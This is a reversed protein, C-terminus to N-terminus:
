SRLWALDELPAPEALEFYSDELLRTVPQTSSDWIIRGARIMFTQAALKSVMSLMHSTLFITIGRQAIAALLACTTRASSPDIGEFPEDLFLVKPNHLLALALATKKRTGQSCQDAFTQGAPGLGFVRFLSETRERIVNHSLGYVAGALEFHEQVTLADFLGLDEPVVGMIRKLKLPHQALNLGAVRIEGSDPHLLGTLMKLLTSKGAGNPGIVACIGSPVQLSISDAALIRDFRKTVSTCEIM